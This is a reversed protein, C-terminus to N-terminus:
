ALHKTLRGIQEYLREAQKEQAARGAAQADDSRKFLAPLAGLATAKWQSLQNPHLGHEAAIQALTKDDRLIQTVVQAKFVATHHKRTIM